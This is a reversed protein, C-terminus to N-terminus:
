TGYWWVSALTGLATGVSAGLAYAVWAWPVATRSAERAAFWWWASIAFGFGAAGLVHAHAIQYTNASVLLVMVFGRAFLSLHEHM